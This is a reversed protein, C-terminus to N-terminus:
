RGSRRSGSGPSGNRAPTTVPKPTCARNMANFLTTKGSNPSGVVAFRTLGVNAEATGGGHHHHGSLEGTGRSYLPVPHCAVRYQTTASASSRPTACRRAARPVTVEIGPVIGLDFFRRATSGAAQHTTRGIVKAREGRALHLGPHGHGPHGGPIRVGSPAPEYSLSVSSVSVLIPTGGEARGPTDAPRVPRGVGQIDATGTRSPCQHGHDTRIQGGSWPGALINAPAARDGGAADVRRHPREAGDAARRAEHGRAPAVVSRRRRARTRRGPRSTPGSSGRGRGDRPARPRARRRGRTEREARRCRALHQEGLLDHRADRRDLLHPQDAAAGLRRHARDPQRAPEGAAGLDDLEGAAVVAVDVRQQGGGPGPHRREGQGVGRADGPGRGGVRDHQGVVVEGGHLRTRRARRRSRRTIVSAAAPLMPTTAGSGPKLAAGARMVASCPASSMTSSTIVPKRTAGRAPEPEVADTASRNVKPLTIPPPSGAAANPPRASTM